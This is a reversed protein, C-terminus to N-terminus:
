YGRVRPFDAARYATCAGPLRAVACAWGRACLTDRIAHAAVRHGLPSPHVVDVRLARFPYGSYCGLLDVAALGADEAAEVAARHLARHPYREFPGGLVPFVVLLGPIGRAALLSRLVDLRARLAAEQAAVAEAHLPGGIPNRARVFRRRAELESLRYEVWAFLLSRALLAERLRGSITRGRGARDQVLGLEYSFIGELDNLCFAVVVVDPSFALARARLAEIEQDLNYGPVGFNLVEVRGATGAAEELMAELQRPFADREAVWYGFAISDGLVAVRRVGARKEVTTEPGRLGLANVRYDVEARIASGPRLEFRLRPNDSRRVTARNIQVTGVSVGALRLGAELILLAVLLSAAALAFSGALRRFASSPGTMPRDRM